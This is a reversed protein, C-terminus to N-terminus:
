DSRETVARAAVIDGVKLLGGSLVRCTVGSRGELAAQGGPGITEDMRGCPHCDHEVSVLISGVQLKQGLLVRLDIGRVVIQRRSAGEPVPRGLVRAAAALGELGILTLQRSKGPGSRYDGELGFDERVAIEQLSEAPDGNQRVRHISVVTGTPM